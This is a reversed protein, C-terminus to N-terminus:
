LISGATGNKLFFEGAMTALEPREADSRYPLKGVALKEQPDPARHLVYVAVLDARHLSARGDPALEPMGPEVRWEIPTHRIGTESDTFAERAPLAPYKNLREAEIRVERYAIGKHLRIVQVTSDGKAGEPRRQNSPAAANISCMPLVARGEDVHYASTGHYLMYPAERHERSYSNPYNSLPKNTYTIPTQDSPTELKAPPPAVGRPMEAPHCPDQLAAVFLGALTSTQSADWMLDRQYGPLKLPEGFHTALHNIIATEQPDGVHKIRASAEIRHDRLHDRYNAYTLFAVGNRIRNFLQIKADIIRTALAVLERKDRNFPGTLWVSLESEFVQGGASPSSVVHVGGWNTAPEPPVASVQEHRVTFEMELGNPAENLDIAAIRYGRQLPPMMQHARVIQHVNVKAHAVRLYGHYIRTTHFDDGTIDESIWFRFNVLGTEDVGPEDCFPVCCTVRFRIRMAYDHVIRLVTVNPEPGHNIDMKPFAKAVTPLQAGPRVAGPAVELYTSGGVTMKFNRRPMMLRRVIADWESAVNQLRLGRGSAGSRHVDATCVVDIQVFVPDVGNPDRRVTYSVDETHVDTLPVTNYVIETPM